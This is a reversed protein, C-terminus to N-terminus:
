RLVFMQTLYYEGKPGRSVGIGTLNFEGEINKRHKPSNLWGEVAQAAPNRYGSNYAVNEAAHRYPMQLVEVRHRFGGHGFPVQKNAMEQSHLRAQQALSSDWHLAPLNRNARHQNIQQIIDQEIDRLPATSRAMIKPQRPPPPPLVSAIERANVQSFATPMLLGAFITALSITKRM